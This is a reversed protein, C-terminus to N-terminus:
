FCNFGHGVDSSLKTKAEDLTALILGFNPAMWPLHVGNDSQQLASLLAYHAAYQISGVVAHSPCSTKETAVPLILNTLDKKKEM